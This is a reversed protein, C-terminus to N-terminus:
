TARPGDPKPGGLGVGHRCARACLVPGTRPRDHFQEEAADLDAPRLAQWLSLGRLYAKYAAPNVTRVSALRAEEAPLLAVALAKAVSRAVETQVQLIGSVDQEYMDSWVQTQDATHVLETAVRIRTGERQVSGEIVYGIDLERGIRNVPVEGGAYRLVSYPQGRQPRGSQLHRPGHHTGPDHRRRAGASRFGGHPERVPPGCAQRSARAGRHRRLVVNSPRRRRLGGARRHPRIPRGGGVTHGVHELRPNAEDAANARRDAARRRGTGAHVAELAAKVEEGRQYREGPDKRLCRDIVAALAPPVSTPLPALPQSLIASTLEFGTKGQFPRRGAAMEYLMIGLAWVDSRTDAPHGSLQDPAMYALTGVVMGPETLTHAMTTAESLEEGSLRKALGFDLVKVQGEPTVVADASKLDRHVVGRGHAHALADAHQQGYRLVQDIPMTGSSLRSALSQGEVFEMGIYARGNSASTM